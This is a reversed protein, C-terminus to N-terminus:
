SELASKMEIGSVYRNVEDFFNLNQCDTIRYIFEFNTKVKEKRNNKVM